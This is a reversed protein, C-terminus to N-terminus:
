ELDNKLYDFTTLLEDRLESVSEDIMREVRSVDTGFWKQKFKKVTDRYQEEGIDDSQWWEVDHLVQILDHMMSNLERDYMRGVYESEVRYYLYDYSGGSM